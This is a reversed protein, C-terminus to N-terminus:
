KLNTLLEQVANESSKWHSLIKGDAGLEVMEDQAVVHYKNKLEKFLDINVRYIVLDAPLEKAHDTFNQEVLACTSCWSAQFFLVVRRGQGLSETVLQPDYNVIDHNIPRPSMIPAIFCTTTKAFCPTLKASIGFGVAVVSAVALSVFLFKSHMQQCKALDM